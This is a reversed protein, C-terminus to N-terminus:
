RKFVYKVIASAILLIFGLGVLTAGAFLGALVHVYTREEWSAEVHYRVTIDIPKTYSKKTDIMVSLRPRIDEYWTKTASIHVNLKVGPTVREIVCYLPETAKELPITFEFKYSSRRKGECYPDFTLDAIYRELNTEDLFYLNFLHGKAEEATGKIVVGDKAPPEYLPHVSWYWYEMWWYLTLTEDILIDKKLEIIPAREVVFYIWETCKEAPVTFTFEYSSANRGEYYAKFTAMAMWREYNEKDLVYLNFAYGKVEKATGNIEVPVKRLPMFLPISRIPHAGIFPLVDVTGVVFNETFHATARVNVIRMTLGKTLEEPALSFKFEHRGPVNEAKVYTKANTIELDFPRGEVEEVYGRVVLDRVDEPRLFSYTLPLTHEDGAYVTATKDVLVKSRPEWVEQIIPVLAVIAGITIFILGMIVLIKPLRM